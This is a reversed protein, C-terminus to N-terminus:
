FKGGPSGSASAVPNDLGEHALTISSTLVTTSSADFRPGSWAIPYARRFNWWMVPTQAQNMLYITGNRRQIVGAVVDQYWALLMDVDSLGKILQLNAYSSGKPLKYSRANDGGQRREEIETTIDLGSIETFGGAILGQVEVLFNFGLYPDLRLGTARSAATAAAGPGLTAM